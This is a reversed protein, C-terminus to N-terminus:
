SFFINKGRNWYFGQKKQFTLNEFSINIGKSRFEDIMEFKLQDDECTLCGDAIDESNLEIKDDTAINTVIPKLPILTPPRAGSNNGDGTQPVIMNAIKEDVSTSIFQSDYSRFSNLESGNLSEGIQGNKSDNTNSADDDKNEIDCFVNDSINILVIQAGNSSTRTNPKM